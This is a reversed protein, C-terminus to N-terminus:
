RREPNPPGRRDPLEPWRIQAPLPAHAQEEMDQYNLAVEVNGTELREVKARVERLKLILDALPQCDEWRRRLSSFILKAIDDRDTIEALDALTM